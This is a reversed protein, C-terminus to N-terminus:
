EKSIELLKQKILPIDDTMFIKVWLKYLKAFGQPDNVTYAVLKKSMQNVKDVVEQNIYWKELLYYPHSFDKVIDISWTHYDDRWAIIGSYSWIIYNVTPDYSIFIVKDQLWLKKVTNIADMAQQRAKDPNYVKLELYYYDFMDKTKDLMNELTMIKEWNILKCNRQIYDLTYDTINLWSWCQTNALNPWHQIINQNDQTYSVDFEIWKAGFDKALQFAQLTNEPSQASAWRHWLIIIDQFIDLDWSFLDSQYKQFANLYSRVQLWTSIGLSNRFKTFDWSSTILGYKNDFYACHTLWRDRNTDDSFTDNYLSSIQIYGSWRYNKISHFFDIHQVINNNFIDPKIGSGVITALIKSHAVKGFKQVEAKTLPQMKRHDSVIILIWDDFFWIRKLKTYFAYLNKDVYEFMKSTSDWYPTYYPTHSSITQLTLFFNWTYQSILDIAENYLYYDPASDFTYKKNKQFREEWIINKYHIKDLFDRQNLFGLPASSLFITDFWLKNFFQPLTDTYNKYDFYWKLDKNSTSYRPEIWQLLAIHANDSSCGNSLVNTFTIWQSQIQDFYPFNNNLWWARISDVTSFSEAFVLILNLNKNQWKVIQFYDQYNTKENQIYELNDKSFYDSITTYNLSIINQQLRFNSYVFIKSVFFSLSFIFILMSFILKTYKSYKAYNYLAVFIIYFVILWLIFTAGYSIIFYINSLDLFRYIDIISLRSQFINITFIDLFFLLFLLINIGWLTWRIIKNKIYYIALVLISIISLVLVDNTFFLLYDISWDFEAGYSIHIIDFKIILLILISLIFVTSYIQTKSYAFFISKLYILKEIFFKYLTKYFKQITKPM